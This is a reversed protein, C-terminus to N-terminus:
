LSVLIQSNVSYRVFSMTSTGTGLIKKTPELVCALLRGFYIM